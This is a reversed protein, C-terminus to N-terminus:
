GAEIFRKLCINTLEVIKGAIDYNMYIDVVGNVCPPESKHAKKPGKTLGLYILFTNEIM